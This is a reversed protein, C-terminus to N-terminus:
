TNNNENNRIRKKSLLNENNDDIIGDDKKEGDVVYSNNNPHLGFAEIPIINTEDRKINESSDNSINLLNNVNNNTSEKKEPNLLNELNKSQEKAESAVKPQSNINSKEEQMHLNEEFQENEEPSANGEKFDFFDDIDSYYINKDQNEKEKNEDTCDNSKKNDCTIYIVDVKKITTGENIESIHSDTKTNKDTSYESYNAINNLTFLHDNAQEENHFGDCYNLLKNQNSEVKGVNKADSETLIVDNGLKAIM